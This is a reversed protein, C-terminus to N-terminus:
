NCCLCYYMTLQAYYLCSMSIILFVNLCSGFCPSASSLFAVIGRWICYGDMGVVWTSLYTFTRVNSLSSFFRLLTGQKTTKGTEILLFPAPALPGAKTFHNVGRIHM